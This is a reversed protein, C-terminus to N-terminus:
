FSHLAPHRIGAGHGAHDELKNASQAGTHAVAAAGVQFLQLLFRAKHADRIGPQTFAVHGIHHDGAFRRIVSNLLPSNLWLPCLPVCLHNQDTASAQTGRLKFEVVCFNKRYESGASRQAASTRIAELSGKEASCVPLTKFTNKPQIGGSGKSRSCKMIRLSAWRVSYPIRPRRKKRAQRPVCEPQRM